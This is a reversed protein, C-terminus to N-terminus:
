GTARRAPVRDRQVWDTRQKRCSGRATRWAARCRPPGGVRPSGRGRRGRPRAAPWRSGLARCRTRRGCSGAGALAAAPRPVCEVINPHKLEKLLSVERITTPPVGEDEQELRVKKLAVIESTVKHKARYVVGYTGEGIKEIKDYDEM